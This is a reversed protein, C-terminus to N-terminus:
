IYGICDAHELFKFLISILCIAAKFTENLELWGCRYDHEHICMPMSNPGAM